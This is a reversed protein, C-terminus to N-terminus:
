GTPRTARRYAEARRRLDDSRGIPTAASRAAARAAACPFLHDVSRSTGEESATEASVPRGDAAMTVVVPARVGHTEHLPAGDDVGAEVDFQVCEADVFVRDGGAEAGLFRHHCFSPQEPDLGNDARFRPDRELFGDVSSRVVARETRVL